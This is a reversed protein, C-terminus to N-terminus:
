SLHPDNTKALCSLVLAHYWFRRITPMVFRGFFAYWDVVGHITETIVVFFYINFRCVNPMRWKFWLCIVDDIKEVIYESYCKIIIKKHVFLSTSDLLLPYSVYYPKRYSLFSFSKRDLFNRFEFTSIVKRGSGGSDLETTTDSLWRRQNRDKLPATFLLSAVRLEM